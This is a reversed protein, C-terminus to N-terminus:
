HEHRHHADPFHAHTHAISLHQHLHRHSAGLLVPALAGAHDHDHHADAGAGGGHTHEHDHTLPEHLHAHEHHETLHLVVGIAMLAGGLLLPLTMPEGLLPLALLAGAFPAISFYAGTRATGLQRLALVFLVLSAGYSAFGLLMAQVAHGASPLAAGALLALALNVSGAVLGKSMAIFGADLLSVKRTLNNDIAWALCAAVILLASVTGGGGMAVTAGSIAGPSRPWSLVVGGAVIALMGLAIRRDFNEKFVFWALLATLVGESNLLLSAPAANYGSLGLMLLVPGVVGGALVAGGLWFWQEGKPLVAPERRRKFQLVRVMALGLGSGLYLLAALMLPNVSALLIKALPTGMGFLFAAALAYMVGQNVDSWWKQKNHGMREGKLKGNRAPFFCAQLLSKLGCPYVCIRGEITSLDVLGIGRSTASAGWHRCHPM